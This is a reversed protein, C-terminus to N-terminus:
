QGCELIYPPLAPPIKMNAWLMMGRRHSGQIRECRFQESYEPGIIEGSNTRIIRGGIHVRLGDSREYVPGIKKWKGALKM